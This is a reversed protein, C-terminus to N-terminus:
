DQRKFVIPLYVEYTPFAGSPYEDAGLDPSTGQPRVDGDIDTTVGADVGADIAASGATLHYDWVSLNVLAPDGYVNVTGTAITGGGGTDSGNNYWLTSELTTTSVGSVNIGVSHHGAIITNTFALTGSAFVGQGSSHNDAITTHLL